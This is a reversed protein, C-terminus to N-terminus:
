LLNMVVKKMYMAGLKEITKLKIITTSVM